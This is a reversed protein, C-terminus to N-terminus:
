RKRKYMGVALRVRCHIIVRMLKLGVWGIVYHAICLRLFSLVGIFGAKLLMQMICYLSSM